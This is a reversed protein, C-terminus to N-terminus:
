KKGAAKVASQEMSACVKASAISLNSASFAVTMPTDPSSM